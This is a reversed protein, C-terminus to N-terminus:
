KKFINKLGNKITNYVKTIIGEKKNNSVYKGPKNLDFLANGTNSASSTKWNVGNSSNSTVGNIANNVFAKADNWIASYNIGTESNFYKGNLGSALEKVKEAARISSNPLGLGFLQLIGNVDSYGLAGSGSGSRAAYMAARANANETDLVKALISAYASVGGENQAMAGSPTSAGANASLVPNLGAAKLDAMERQHATNSMERQFDMQKMAQEASWENQLRMQDQVASLYKDYDSM